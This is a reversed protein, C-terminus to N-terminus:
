STFELKEAMLYSEELVSIKPPMVLFSLSIVRLLHSLLLLNEDGQVGIRFLFNNTPVSRHWFKFQFEIPKTSKTCKKTLLYMYADTWNINDNIPLNCDEQWKKQSSEPTLSKNSILKKYILTTAKKVQLFKTTLPEYEYNANHLDQYKSDSRLSKIVCSSTGKMFVLSAVFFISLDFLPRCIYLHWLGYSDHLSAIGM